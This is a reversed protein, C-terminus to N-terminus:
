APAGQSAASPVRARSSASTRAGSSSARKLHPDRSQRPWRASIGPSFRIKVSSGTRRSVQFGHSQGIGPSFQRTAIGLPTSFRTRNAPNYFTVTGGETVEVIYIENNEDRVQKGVRLWDPPGQVHVEDENSIRESDTASWTRAFEELPVSIVGRRRSVADPTVMGVRLRQGSTAATHSRVHVLGNLIGTISGDFGDADRRVLVGPLLRRSPIPM